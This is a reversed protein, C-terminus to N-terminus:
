PPHSPSHGDLMGFQAAQPHVQRRVAMDQVRAVQGSLQARRGPLVLDGQARAQAQGGAQARAPSPDSRCARDRDTEVPGPQHGSTSASQAQRHGAPQDPLADAFQDQDGASSHRRGVLRPNDGFQLLGAAAHRCGGDIHGVARGQRGQQGRHEGVKAADHVGRSKGVQAQQALLICGTQFRDQAGLHIPGPVQVLQGTPGPQVM